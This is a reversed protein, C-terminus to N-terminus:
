RYAHVPRSARWFRRLDARVAEVKWGAEPSHITLMGIAGERLASLLPSIWDNENKRANKEMSFLHLVALHRGEEPLRGIWEGASDPLARHRMGARRALELAVADDASVSQWPGNPARPLRAAGWLRLGNVAPEGRAERAQNVPHDHLVMQIENLLAHWRKVRGPLQMLDADSELFEGINSKGGWSTPTVPFVNLEGGFHRGIAGCLAEAEERAIRFATAPVVLVRDRDPRLHVPDARMWQEGQTAGGGFSELLWAAVGAPARRTRRGRALLRELAPLRDERPAGPLGPVILECHM